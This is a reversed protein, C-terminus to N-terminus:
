LIKKLHPNPSSLFPPKVSSPTFGGVNKWPVDAIWSHAHVETERWPPQNEGGQEEPRYRAEGGLNGPKREM